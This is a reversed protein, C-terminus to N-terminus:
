CERLPCMYLFGVQQRLHLCFAVWAEGDWFVIRGDAVGTYPGRGQPDFAISEPGQVEHRFMIESKKLSNASDKDKPLEGLPCVDVKVSELDPFEALPSHKFPDTACYLALALPVLAFIMSRSM